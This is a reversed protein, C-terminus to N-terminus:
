VNTPVGTLKLWKDEKVCIEPNYSQKEFKKYILKNCYAVAQVLKQHTKNIKKWEKLKQKLIWESKHVISGSTGIRIENEEQPDM